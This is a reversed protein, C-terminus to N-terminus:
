LQCSDVPIFASKLQPFKCRRGHGVLGTSPMLFPSKHYCNPGVPLSTAVLFQLQRKRYKLKMSQIIGQDMPQSRSTTNAPLFKLEVNALKIVPHAPANDLFLLVHRKQRRMKADLSKLWEEFLAGNMWAKKNSRYTVPLTKPDINKFCRPKRSKGIVLAPLKEGTMSACLAVTLREKSMKGGRCEKGKLHFTKNSSARYFLITEDMNFIDCPAYGKCLEPLKEKWDSVVKEDVDGSEGSMLGFVINHRKVFADLWGNSAKFTEIKLDNAFQLAKEKLLPGSVNIRRATADCFWEWCLHNIEENGTKRMKRKREGAVNSEYDSLVDAKRKLISQIQTKGVNLKEAISRASSGGESMKIVQVKQELNLATRARTGAM